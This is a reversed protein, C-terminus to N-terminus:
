QIEIGRKLDCSLSTAGSKQVVRISYRGPKAKDINVGGNFGGGEFAPKNFVKVLDPRKAGRRASGAIKEKGDVSVLEISVESPATSNLVDVAWGALTLTTPQKIKTIPVAAAGNIADLACVSGDKESNVGGEVDQQDCGNILVASLISFSLMAVVSSKRMGKNGRKSINHISNIYLRLEPHRKRIRAVTVPGTAALCDESDEVDLM